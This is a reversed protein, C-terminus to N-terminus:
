AVVELKLCSSLRKQSIFQSNSEFHNKVEMYFKIHLPFLSYVSACSIIWRELVTRAINIRQQRELRCHLHLKCM